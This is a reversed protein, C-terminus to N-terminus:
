SKKRQQMLNFVAIKELLQFMIEGQEMYSINGLDVEYIEDKINHTKKYVQNLSTAFAVLNEVKEKDNFNTIVSPHTLLELPSVEKIRCSVENERKSYFFVDNSPFLSNVNLMVYKMKENSELSLNNQFGKQVYVSKFSPTYSNTIKNIM